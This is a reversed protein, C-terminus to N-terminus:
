EHKKPTGFRRPTQQSRSCNQSWYTGLEDSDVPTKTLPIAKRANIRYTISLFPHHRSWRWVITVTSSDKSWKAVYSGAGTDLINVIEELAGLNNGTRADTLYVHFNDYGYEGEGHVTIAFQGNPSIGKTITVFEHDGYGYNDTASSLQDFVFFALITILTKVPFRTM